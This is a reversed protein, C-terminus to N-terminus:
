LRISQGPFGNQRYDVIEGDLTILSDSSQSFDMGCFLLPIFFIIHKLNSM